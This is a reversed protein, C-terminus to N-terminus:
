TFTKMAQLHTPLDVEVLLSDWQTDEIKRMNGTEVDLVILPGAPDRRYRSAVRLLAAGSREGSSRFELFVEGPPIEPDLLRLQDEMDMVTSLEWANGSSLLWVSVLFGDAVLLRLRGEPSKGLHLQRVRTNTVPLKVSGPKLTSVQYTLVEDCNSLWCIVGGRLVVADRHQQLSWWPSVLDSKYTMPAWTDGSDSSITQSRITANSDHFGSFDAVFLMFSCGIGDAATLLVYVESNPQPYFHGKGIDPPQSFFTRKGTMPDYVCM